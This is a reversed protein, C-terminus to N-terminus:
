YTMWKGVTTRDIGFISAFDTRNLNKGERLTILRDSFNM